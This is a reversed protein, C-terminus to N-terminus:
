WTDGGVSVMQIKVLEPEIESSETEYVQNLAETVSGKEHAIVYDALAATYLDSLSIGLKDALQQASRFLPNPISIDAKM